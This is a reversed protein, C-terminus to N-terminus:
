KLLSGWIDNDKCFLFQNIIRNELLKQKPITRQLQALHRCISQEEKQAKSRVDELAARLSPSDEKTGVKEVLSQLLFLNSLFDTIEEEM